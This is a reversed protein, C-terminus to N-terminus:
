AVSALDVGLEEARESLLNELSSSASGHNKLDRFASEMLKRWTSAEPDAVRRGREWWLGFLHSLVNWDGDGLEEPLNAAIQTWGHQLSSLLTSHTEARMAPPMLTLAVARMAIGRDGGEGLFRAVEERVLANRGPAPGEAPDSVLLWRALPNFSEGAGGAVRAERLLHEVALRPIQSLLEGPIRKLAQPCQELAIKAQEEGLSAFRWWADTNGVRALLSLPIEIPLQPVFPAVSLVVDLAASETQVLELFAGVGAPPVLAEFRSDLFALARLAVPQAVLFGSPLDEILGASALRIAAVPARLEHIGVARAAKELPLGSRGGLGLAGLLLFADLGLIQELAAFHPWQDLPGLQAVTHARGPNNGALRVFQSIEATSFGGQAELLGRLERKLWGELRYIQESAILGLELSVVSVQSPWCTALIDFDMNLERRVKRLERLEPRRFFADDVLVARPEQRSIAIVLDESIQENLSFFEQCHALRSLLSTKGLGPQGVLIRDGSTRLLWDLDEKM